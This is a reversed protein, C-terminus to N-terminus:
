GHIILVPIKSTKLLKRATSGIFFNGLKETKATTVLHTAGVEEANKLIHQYTNGTETDICIDVSMGKKVLADQIFHARENKENLLEKVYEPSRKSIGMEFHHYITASTAPKALKLLRALGTKYDERLDHTLFYHAKKKKVKTEPHVTLLACPVQFSLEEVFSGFFYTGLGKKNKTGAVILDAKSKVLYKVLETVNSKTTRGKHEILTPKLGLGLTKGAIELKAKIDALVEKKIKPAPNGDFAYEGWNMMSVVKARAIEQESFMTKLTQGMNKLVPGNPHAFDIAIVIKKFAM